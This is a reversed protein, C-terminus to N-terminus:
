VKGLVDKLLIEFCMVKLSEPVLAVIEVIEKIEEKLDAM